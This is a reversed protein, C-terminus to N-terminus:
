NKSLNKLSVWKRRCGTGEIDQKKCYTLTLTGQDQVGSFGHRMKGLNWLVAYLECWCVAWFFAMEFSHGIFVFFHIVYSFAKRTVDNSDRSEAKGLALEVINWDWSSICKGKGTWTLHKDSKVSLIFQFFLLWLHTICLLTGHCM